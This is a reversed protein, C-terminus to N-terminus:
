VHARGIELVKVMGDAKELPEGVPTGQKVVGTGCVPQRKGADAYLIAKEATVVPRYYSEDSEIASFFADLYARAFGRGQEDIVSRQLTDYAKEKRQVFSARVRDLEARVFLTRMRQVQALVEVEAETKAFGPTLVEKFWVHRGTVMGALDFDQMVPLAKEGSRQVGMLNWLPNTDNCRYTDGPFMRLCWDFNGIMAHAFGLRATDTPTFADRASSFSDPAIQGSGGFRKIAPEEDELFMANRTLPDRGPSVYTIRAPRAKLAPVDMSELLHYVFVERHVAKENPWRGYKQTLEGDPKDGCHTGVKVSPGFLARADDGGFELKLKPFECETERRSTHGRTSVKVNKLTVKQNGGPALYTLVGDVAFDEDKRSREILQPFPAEITVEILDYSSFLSAPQDAADASSAAILLLAATAVYVRMRGRIHSPREM